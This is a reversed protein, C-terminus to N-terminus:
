DFGYFLLISWGIPSLGVYIERFGKYFSHLNLIVKSPSPRVILKGRSCVTYSNENSLLIKLDKLPYGYSNEIFKRMMTSGPHGLCAHWLIFSKPDYLKNKIITYSEM